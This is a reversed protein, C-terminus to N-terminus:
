EQQKALIEEFVRRFVDPQQAGTLKYEDNIIFTPVSNLEYKWGLEMNCQLSDAYQSDHLACEVEMPSIGVTQAAKKIEPLLSINRGDEM